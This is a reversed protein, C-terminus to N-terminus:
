SEDPPRLPRRAPRECEEILRLLSSLRFRTTRGVKVVPLRREYALKYLTRPRLRLLDAAEMVDLLRDNSSITASVRTGLSSEMKM